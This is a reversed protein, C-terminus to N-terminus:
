KKIEKFDAFIADIKAAAEDSIGDIKSLADALYTETFDMWANFNKKNNRLVFYWVITAIVMGGVILSIEYLM